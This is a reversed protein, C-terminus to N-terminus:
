RDASVCVEEEARERATTAARQAEAEASRVAAFKNLTSEYLISAILRGERGRAVASDVAAEWESRTAALASEAINRAKSAKKHFLDTM